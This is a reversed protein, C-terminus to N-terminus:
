KIYKEMILSMLGCHGAALSHNKEEEERGRGEERRRRVYLKRPRRCKEEESGM